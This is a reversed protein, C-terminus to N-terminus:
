KATSKNILKMLRSKRRSAANKSIVHEKAAKDVAKQFAVVDKKAAEVDGKLALARSKSMLAKVNVKIRSNHVTRKKTKRLEKMASQKNPM